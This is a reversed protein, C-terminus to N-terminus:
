TPSSFAMRRHRLSFFSSQDFYIIVVKKFNKNCSGDRRIIECWYDARKVRGLYSVLLLM